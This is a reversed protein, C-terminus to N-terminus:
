RVLIGWPVWHSMWIGFGAWGSKIVGYVERRWGWLPSCSGDYRELKREGKEQDYSGLQCQTFGRQTEIVVTLFSSFGEAWRMGLALLPVM